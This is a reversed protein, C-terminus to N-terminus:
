CQYYPISSMEVIDSPKAAILCQPGPYINDRSSAESLWTISWPTLVQLLPILTIKHIIHSFLRLPQIHSYNHHHSPNPKWLAQLQTPLSTKFLPWLLISAVFEWAEPKGERLSSRIDTHITNHLSYFLHHISQVEIPREQERGVDRVVFKEVPKVVHLQCHPCFTQPFNWMWPHVEQNWPGGHGFKIGVHEFREHRISERTRHEYIWEVSWLVFEKAM